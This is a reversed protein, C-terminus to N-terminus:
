ENDIYTEIPDNEFDIVRDSRKECVMDMHGQLIITERDEMGPSAPKRILVNGAEDRQYELHHKEAFNQLYAMMKEEHKSPRPVKNIEAFYDFVAKPKLEM